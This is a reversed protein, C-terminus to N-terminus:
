REMSTRRIERTRESSRVRQYLKKTNGGIIYNRRGSSKKLHDNSRSNYDKKNV